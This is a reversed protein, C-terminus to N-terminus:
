VVSKRDVPQITPWWPQVESTERCRLVKRTKRRNSKGEATDCMPEQRPAPTPRMTKRRPRNVRPQGRPRVHEGELGALRVSVRLHPAGRYASGPFSAARRHLRVQARDVM